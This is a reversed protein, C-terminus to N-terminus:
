LVIFIVWHFHISQLHLRRLNNPCCCSYYEELSQQFQPILPFSHRFNQHYYVLEHESSSINRQLTLLFFLAKILSESTHIYLNKKPMKFLNQFDLSSFSSWYQSALELSLAQSDFLYFFICLFGFCKISFIPFYKGGNRTFLLGM